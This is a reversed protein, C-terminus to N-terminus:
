VSAGSFGFSNPKQHPTKQEDRLVFNNFDVIEIEFYRDSETFQCTKLDYLNNEFGM